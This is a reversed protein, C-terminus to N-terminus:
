YVNAATAVSHFGEGLADTAEDVAFGPGDTAIEYLVGGPERAYLSRFYFRDIAGSSRVGVRNHRDVWSDFADDPVRLGVHHVAGAGQRSRQLDPEVWMRLEAAPGGDGMEFVHVTIDADVCSRSARMGMIGAAFDASPELAPLSMTIPGLGRIQYALPVPIKAWPHGPGAGADDILALRQGEPDDFVLQLRGDQVSLPEPQVGADGLRASWYELAEKGSVRLATRVVSNTGRPEPRAPWDFFTIDTGPTGQGDAYFLNYAIVDDHNVTKKVLRVELVRTYFDLNASANATIATLHQIGTLHMM